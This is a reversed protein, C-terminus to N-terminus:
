RLLLLSGATEEQNEYCGIDPLAAPNVALPKGETVVRPNGALDAATAMWDLMKGRDRCSSSHRISWDGNAADRFRPSGYVPGVVTFGETPLEASLCCNTLAVANNAALAGFPASGERWLICDTMSIATGAARPAVVNARTNVFTCSECTLQHNDYWTTLTSTGDTNAFLSNVITGFGMFASGSNGIMRINRYTSHNSAFIIGYQTANGTFVLDTYRSNDGGGLVGYQAGSNGRFVCNSVTSGYIITMASGFGNQGSPPVVHNDFFGCGVVYGNLNMSDTQSFALGGGFLAAANNTFTCDVFAPVYWADSSSLDVVSRRARASLPQVNAAGGGSQSATNGDFVCNELWGGRLAVGGGNVASCGVFRCNIVRSPTNGEKARGYMLLGGGDGAYVLGDGATTVGAKFTFGELVVQHQVAPVCEDYTTDNPKTEGWHTFLIRTQGQGDLVTADRDPAGTAPNCSKVTLTRNSVVLTKGIAYTGSRVLVLGDDSTADIAAQFDTTADAWDGTKDAESAVVRSVSWYDQDGPQREYCGIDVASGVVRARGDIDVADAHWDLAEGADVCPSDSRLRYCHNEASVFGPEDTRCNRVVNAHQGSTAPRTGLLICNGWENTSYTASGRALTKGTAAITCNDFYTVGASNHGCIIGNFTPNDAFLCNRVYIPNPNSLSMIFSDTLKVNNTFACDVIQGGGKTNLLGYNGNQVNLGTFTCNSVVLDTADVFIVEGYSGGAKGTFLCGNFRSHIGARVHGAQDTAVNDKFTCREAHISRGSYAAGGIKATNNTFVCNVFTQFITESDGNNQLYVGGGNGTSVNSAFLCNSIVAGDCVWLYAGAGDGGSNGVFRCNLVKANRTGNMYLGRTANKFTFGDITTAVWDKTWVLAKEYTGDPTPSLVTEEANVTGKDPDYSRLKLNSQTISIQSPVAYTGKRVLVTDNDGAAAVATAIDNAATEWSTYPSTPTNGETGQPVVYHTDASAIFGVTLATLGVLVRVPQM